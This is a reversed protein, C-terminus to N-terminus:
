GGTKEAVYVCVDNATIFRNEVDEEPIEIEYKEELEMVLDLMDGEDMGLDNMLMVDEGRKLWDGVEDWPKGANSAVIKLIEIKDM